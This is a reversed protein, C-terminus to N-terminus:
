PRMWWWGTRSAPLLRSRRVEHQFFKMQLKPDGGGYGRGIPPIIHFHADIIM